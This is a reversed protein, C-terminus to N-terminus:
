KKLGTRWGDLYASLPGAPDKVRRFYTARSLGLARARNAAPANAALLAAPMPQGAIARLRGAVYHKARWLLARCEDGGGRYEVYPPGVYWWDLVLRVDEPAGHLARWIRRGDGTYVEAFHQEVKGSRGGERVLATASRSAHGDEHELHICFMKRGDFGVLARVTRGSLIRRRQKGWTRLMPEVERTLM